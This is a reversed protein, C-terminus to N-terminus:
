KKSIKNAFLSLRSKYRDATRWHLIGKVAAKDITVLASGLATKVTDASKANRVKKMASKVRSLWAQNRSAHRKTKRLDKISAKLQPM